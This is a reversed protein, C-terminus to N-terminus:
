KGEEGRCTGRVRPRWAGDEGGEGSRYVGENTARSVQASEERTSERRTTSVWAVFHERYDTDGSFLFTWVSM